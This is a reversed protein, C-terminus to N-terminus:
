RHNGGCRLFTQRNFGEHATFFVAHHAFCNQAFEFTAALHIEQVIFDRGDFIASFLEFFEDRFRADGDSVPLHVLAIELADHAIKVVLAGVDQEAGGDNFCANVYRVGVGDDHVARIFEAEALQVLQATADTARVVLGVGVQQNVM